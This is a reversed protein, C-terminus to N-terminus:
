GVAAGPAGHGGTRGDVTVVRASGITLTMGSEVQVGEGPGVAVSEGDSFRVHWTTGSRNVLGFSEPDDPHEVVLGIPDFSGYGREVHYGYLARHSAVPVRRIRGPGLEVELCNPMPIEAGCGPRRCRQHVGDDLFNLGGCTPCTIMSDRLSVLAELWESEMVRGHQPDRLGDTFSKIFLRRLRSPYWNWYSQAHSWGESPLNSPDDPDFCFLPSTGFHRLKADEDLLGLTARGMLPHWRIFLMFLLVALSHRDTNASPAGEGRVIEPAMFDDQGRVGMYPRLEFGINDTDCIFAEGTRPDIFFNSLNIDRYALGSTHLQQLAITVQLSFLILADYTLAGMQAVAVQALSEFGAPRRTMLYGFSENGDVFVLGQPWLFRDSPPGVILLDTIARLQEDRFNAAYYENYWKVVVEGTVHGPVALDHVSGQGGSGIERGVTGIATVGSPFEITVTEGERLSAM